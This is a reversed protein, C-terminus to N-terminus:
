ALVIRGARVVIWCVAFLTMSTLALRGTRQVGDGWWWRLKGDRPLLLLTFVALLPVGILKTGLGASALLTLSLSPVGLGIWVMRARGDARKSARGVVITLLAGYGLACTAFLVLAFWTPGFLAFDRNNPDILALAPVLSGLACVAANRRPGERPLWRGLGVGIIVAIVSGIVTGALLLFLTGDATFEGPVAGSEPRIGTGMTGSSLALLRMAVRAGIGLALLGAVGGGLGLPGAQALVGALRGPFRGAAETDVFVAPATASTM